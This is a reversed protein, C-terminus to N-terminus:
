GGRQITEIRLAASKLDHSVIELPRVAKGKRRVLHPEVNGFAAALEAKAHGANSESFMPQRHLNALEVVDSDVVTLRGIGAGALAPIVASGIGGAGIVVVSATKLKNQGVGGFERLVIQRAYRDLEEDTLSM